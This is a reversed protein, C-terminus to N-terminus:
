SGLSSISKLVKLLNEVSCAADFFKTDRVSCMIWDEESRYIDIRQNNKNELEIHELNVKLRWGPNDITKLRIRDDYELNENCYAQYWQQLWSFDDKM